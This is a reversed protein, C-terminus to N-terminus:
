RQPGLAPGEDRGTLPLPAPAPPPTSGSSPMPRFMSPAPTPVPAPQVVPAPGTTPPQPNPSPQPPALPPEATQIKGAPTPERTLTPGPLPSEAVRPVIGPGPPPGPGAGPGPGVPPEAKKAASYGAMHYFMLATRAQLRVRLAHDHVAAKELAQGAPQSVPRLKGLSHAAESRVGPKPDTQLADVLAPIIQPFQGPDYQRLEEAAEARKRDDLDAKLVQVLEPVRQTPEPKKRKGFIGAPAPVAVALLLACALLSHCWRM